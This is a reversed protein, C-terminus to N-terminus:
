EYTVNFIVDLLLRADTVRDGYRVLSVQYNVKGQAYRVDETPALTVVSATAETFDIDQDNDKDHFKFGFDGEGTNTNKIARTDADVEDLTTLKVTATIGAMSSPCKLVFNIDKSMLPEGIPPLTNIIGSAYSAYHKLVQESGFIFDGFYITESSYTEPISLTCTDAVVRGTIVYDRSNSQAVTSDGWTPLSFLTFMVPVMTSFKM